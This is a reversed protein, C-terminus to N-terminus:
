PPMQSQCRETILGQAFPILYMGCPHFCNIYCTNKMWLIQMFLYSDQEECIQVFSIDEMLFGLRRFKNLVSQIRAKGSSHWFLIELYRSHKLESSRHYWTRHINIDLSSLNLPHGLNQPDFNQLAGFDLTNFNLPPGVNLNFILQLPSTLHKM